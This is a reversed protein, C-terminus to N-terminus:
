SRIEHMLLSLQLIDVAMLMRARENRCCLLSHGGSCRGRSDTYGLGYEDWGGFARRLM